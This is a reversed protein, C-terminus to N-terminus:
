PVDHGRVDQRRDVTRAARDRGPRQPSARGQARQRAALPRAQPQLVGQVRDRWGIQIDPSRQRANEPRLGRRYATGSRRCSLPYLMQSRIGVGPDSAFLFPRPLAMLRFPEERLNLHCPKSQLTDLLRTRQTMRATAPRSRRRAAQKANPGVVMTNRPRSTFQPGVMKAANGLLGKPCVSNSSSRPSVQMAAMSLRSPSAVSTTEPPTPSKRTDDRRGLTGAGGRGSTPPM